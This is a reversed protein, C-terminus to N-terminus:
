VDKGNRTLRVIDARSFTVQVQAPVPPAGAIVPIGAPNVSAIGALGDRENIDSTMVATIKVPAVASVQPLNPALKFASVTATDGIRPVNDFKEKVKLIAILGGIGIAILGVPHM